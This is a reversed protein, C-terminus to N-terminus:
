EIDKLLERVKQPTVRGHVTDDIVLVPSLACSGFCAVSELSFSYDPSTEGPELGLQRTVEALIRKGGRVHCATGQCVRVVHDGPRTFRFQTYFTAVGYIESESIDLHDSVAKVAEESLFGLRSQVGQLIPILSDRHREHEELVGRIDESSERQGPDM